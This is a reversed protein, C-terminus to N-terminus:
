DELSGLWMLSTGFVSIAAAMLPDAGELMGAIIGAAALIVGLQRQGEALRDPNPRKM